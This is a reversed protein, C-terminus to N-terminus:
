RVVGAYNARPMLFETDRLRHFTFLSTRRLLLAFRSDGTNRAVMPSAPFSDM